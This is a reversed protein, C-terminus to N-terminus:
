LGDFLLESKRTERYRSYSLSTYILCFDFAQSPHASDAVEPHLSAGRIRMAGTDRMAVLAGSQGM